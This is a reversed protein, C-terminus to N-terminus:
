IGCDCRGRDVIMGTLWRRAVSRTVATSSSNPVWLWRVALVIVERPFRFGAFTSPPPLVPRVRRICRMLRLM